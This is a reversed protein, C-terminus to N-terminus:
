RQVPPTLPFHVNFSTHGDKRYGDTAGFLAIPEGHADFLLAPKEVQSNGMAGGAWAFKAGLVKPHDAARWKLGDDSQFLALGGKAGTFEGVVDRTPHQRLDWLDGRDLSLRLENGKGWLLGGLLGNGLPIAEDWKEIPAALTLRMPEPAASAPLIAALATALFVSFIRM